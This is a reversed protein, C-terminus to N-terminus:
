RRHRRPEVRQWAGSALAAYGYRCVLWVPGPTTATVGHAATWAALWGLDAPELEAPGPRTVVLHTGPPGPLLGLLLDVRLGHDLFEGVAVSRSAVPVGGPSVVDLETAFVRRRTRRRLDCVRAGLWDGPGVQLAMGLVM